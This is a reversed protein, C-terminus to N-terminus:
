KSKAQIQAQVAEGLWKEAKERGIIEEVRREDM